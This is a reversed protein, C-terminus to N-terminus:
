KPISLFQNAIRFALDNTRARSLNVVTVVVLDHEPYIAFMTSGGVSGGSHGVWKREKSDEGLAWGLGYNTKKGDNLTFPTVFLAQTTESYLENGLISKGFWLLDEATSIFGGGAWKYSNDVKPAIANEGSGNQWYFSVRNPTEQTSYDPFTQTMKAKDFVYAQMSELFPQEAASELAASLLNWGYSSYSFKEGPKFLLDDEQFIELGDLVNPYHKNNMIEAAGKYHRIGAVHHALHNVLITHNKEPFSPVYQRVDAYINLKEEEHLQAMLAATLTKSVSGIRFLHKSPDVKEQAEINAFGYGKSWVIEGEHMVAVAMGPFKGNDFTKQSIQDAQKIADEVSNIQGHSSFSLGGVFLFAFLHLTKM